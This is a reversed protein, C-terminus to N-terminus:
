VNLFPTSEDDSYYDESILGRGVEHRVPRAMWVVVSVLCVMVGMICLVGDISWLM